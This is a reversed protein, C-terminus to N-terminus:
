LRCSTTTVACIELSKAPWRTSSVRKQTSRGRMVSRDTEPSSVSSEPGYMASSAPAENLLRRSNLPSSVGGSTLSPRYDRFRSGLYGVLNHGPIMEHFATAHSFAPNNGRMSQMRADFDMTDTPYSVLIHDGGLFFPSTLQAQPSMMTMHLSEAAVAPM